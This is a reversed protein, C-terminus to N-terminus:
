GMILYQLLSKFEKMFEQFNKEEYDECKPCNDPIVPVFDGLAKHQGDPFYNDKMFELLIQAETNNEVCAVEEVVVALELLYCHIISDNCTDDTQINATYLTLNMASHQTWYLTGNIVKHFLDLDQLIYKSMELSKYGHAFTALIIFGFIAKIM